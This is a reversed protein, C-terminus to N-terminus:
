QAGAMEEDDVLENTLAAVSEAVGEDIEPLSKAVERVDLKGTVVDSTLRNKYEMLLESEKHLREVARNISELHSDVENVIADQEARPPQPSKAGLLRQPPITNRLGSYLPSLLKRDDMALYFLELYDPNGRGSPEFVTYASTIMGAVRARGVTRPTEPVDFLCFVFDGVRVEQSSGADKSFKGTMNTLDRVIVGKKTLSLLEFDAHRDGVIVKKKRMLARNPVLEWHTPIDGLWPVGSPKLSVSPDLGRTVAQHIIAQKQENLATIMRRKVAGASDVKHDFHRLFKAISCQEDLTPVPVEINGLDESYLRLRSEVIGTSATRIRAKAGPSRLLYHFYRPENHTNFRYVCYAPSVMGNFDSVGLSGNWALMINVALDGRSVKKYGVLSAARTDIEGSHSLRGRVTVGTYQSVRLLDEAGSQSRLNVERLVYKARLVTWHAPLDGLWPLGSSRTEPYPRLVGIM